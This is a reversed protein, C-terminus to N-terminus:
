SVPTTLTLRGNDKSQWNFLSRSCLVRNGLEDQPVRRSRFREVIEGHPDQVEIECRDMYFLNLQLILRRRIYQSRWVVDKNAM